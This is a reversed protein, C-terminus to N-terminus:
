TALQSHTHSLYIVWYIRPVYPKDELLSVRVINYLSLVVHMAWNFPPYMLPSRVFCMEGFNKKVRLRSFYPPMSTWYIRKFSLRASKNVLDNSVVINSPNCHLIPIFCSLSKLRYIWSPSNICVASKKGQGLNQGM